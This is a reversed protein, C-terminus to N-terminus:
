VRVWWTYNQGLEVREFLSDVVDKVAFSFGQEKNGYDHGGIWGGSKVKPFWAKIDRTLGHESHDADLFVLDLTADQIKKAASKSDRKLIEVRDGFPELRAQAKEYVSRAEENSWLSCNDGTQVYSKSRRSHPLWNDVAYLRVGKHKQLVYESLIGSRVGVEAMRSEGKPLRALIEDGRLIVAQSPM